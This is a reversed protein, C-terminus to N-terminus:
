SGDGGGPSFDELLRTLMFRVRDINAYGDRLCRQRGAEAIAARQEEHDLYYRIKELMEERTRYFVAEKDAEFLRAHEGTYEALMFGGCAPIEISRDTQLDRNAKRLFCLNIRTACIENTYLLEGGTNVLARREVTLGPVHQKFADWGNGWVRVPIGNQALYILDDARAQEFSGIFGVDGGYRLIEEGSVTVPHHSEPDYAKDVVMVKRAGLKPLEAADANYSKTTIVCDYLGLGNAYSRTRNVPNNMDDESYSVLLCRPYRERLRRLIRLRIMNGKEIWIIDPADTLHTKLLWDNVGEMDAEFGLKWALRFAVNRPVTGTSKNLVPTHSASMVRAAIDQFCGLRAYGKSYTNLDAVFLIFLHSFGTM